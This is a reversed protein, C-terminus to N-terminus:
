SYTASAFEPELELAPTDDFEAEATGAVAFAPDVVADGLAVVVVVSGALASDGAVFGHQRKDNHVSASVIDIAHVGPELESGVVGAAFTALRM